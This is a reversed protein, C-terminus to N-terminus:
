QRFKKEIEENSVIALVPEGDPSYNPMECAFLRDIIEQMEERTLSKGHHVASSRALNRAIKEGPSKKFSSGAAKYEELLSKIMGAPDAHGTDVPCGSIL